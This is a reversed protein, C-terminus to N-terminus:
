NFYSALFILLGILIAIVTLFTMLQWEPPLKRLLPVNAAWGAAVVVQPEDEDSEHPAYGGAEMLKVAQEADRELVEVRAGGVDAYGAMIQSTFENRIYCDIGESRLFAVLTHADAPYIYRAIEVMREDKEEM